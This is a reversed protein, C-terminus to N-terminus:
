QVTVISTKVVAFYTKKVCVIERERERERERVCVCVFVYVSVYIYIVLIKSLIMVFPILFVIVSSIHSSCHPKMLLLLVALAIYKNSCEYISRNPM